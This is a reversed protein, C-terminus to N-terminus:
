KSLKENVENMNTKTYLDHLFNINTAIVFYFVILQLLSACGIVSLAFNKILLANSAYFPTKVLFLYSLHFLLAVGIILICFCLVILMRRIRAIDESKLIDEISPRVIKVIANPYVYAIWLGLITFVVGSSATLYNVLEKMSDYSYSINLKVVSYFIIFYICISSLILYRM